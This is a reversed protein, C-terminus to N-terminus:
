KARKLHKRKKEKSKSEPIYCAIQNMVFDAAKKIDYKELDRALGTMDSQFCVDDLKAALTNMFDDRHIEIKNNKMYYLFIEVVKKWDLSLEKAKWLDYLDRGKKRQHLARIKTAILENLSFTQITTQGSKWESDLAFAVQHVGEVSFHERLNVEIKIQSKERDLPHIQQKENFHHHPYPPSSDWRSETKLGLTATNGSGQSQLCM